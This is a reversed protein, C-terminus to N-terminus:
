KPQQGAQFYALAMRAAQVPMLNIDARTVLVFDMARFHLMVSWVQLLATTFVGVGLFTYVSPYGVIYYILMTLWTVGLAVMFVYDIPKIWGQM